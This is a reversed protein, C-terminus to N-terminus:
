ALTTPLNTLVPPEGLHVHIEVSDFKALVAQGLLSQEGSNLVIAPVSEVTKQGLTVRDLVIYEGHVDGDAGRGVVDNMGISTALGANRADERSLAVVTAGTDVLARVPAGNIQADAYFHGDSSRQIEVTGDDATTTGGSSATQVREHLRPEPSRAQFTRVNSRSSLNSAIAGFLAAAFIIILYVRGM